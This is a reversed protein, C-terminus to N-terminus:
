YPLFTAKGVNRISRIEDLGASELAGLYRAWVGDDNPDMEGSIFALVHADRISGINQDLDRLENARGEAITWAVYDGNRLFPPHPGTGYTVHGDGIARLVVDPLNFNMVYGRRYMSEEWGEKTLVSYNSPIGEPGFYSFTSGEESLLYDFVRLWENVREEPVDASISAAQYWMGDRFVLPESDPESLPYGSVYSGKIGHMNAIENTNKIRGDVLYMIDSWEKQRRGLSILNESHMKNLYRLVERYKSTEPGYSLENSDPDVYWDNWTRWALLFGSPLVHTGGHEIPGQVPWANPFRYKIMKATDYLEETDKPFRAGIEELTQQRYVWTGQRHLPKAVPFGYIRKNPARAAEEVFAWESADFGERLQPVRDLLDELPRLYGKEGWEDTTGKPWPFVVEPGNGASFQRAITKVYEDAPILEFEVVVDFRLSLERAWESDTPAEEAPLHFMYNPICTTCGCPPRKCEPTPLATSSVVPCLAVFVLFSVQAVSRTVSRVSM